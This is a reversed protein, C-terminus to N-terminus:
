LRGLLWSRFAAAPEVSVALPVSAVPLERLDCVGLRVADKETTLVIAAGAARAAAAIRAVDRQSFPHHDPFALAGAIPWGAASLDSFFRRPRAIGAVAFVRSGTPVDVPGVGPVSHPAELTRVIRFITEVGLSRGIREAAAADGATVVLAHAAAASALPERM